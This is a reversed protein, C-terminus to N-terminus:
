LLKNLKTTRVHQTSRLEYTFTIRCMRDDDYDDNRIRSEDRNKANAFFYFNVIDCVLNKNREVCAVVFRGGVKYRSRIHSSRIHSHTLQASRRVLTYLSTPDNVRGWDHSIRRETPRDPWRVLSRFSVFLAEERQKWSPKTAELLM